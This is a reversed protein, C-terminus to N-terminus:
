IKYYKANCCKILKKKKKWALICGHLRCAGMWTSCHYWIALTQFHVAEDGRANMEM